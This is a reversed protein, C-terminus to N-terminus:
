KNNLMNNTIKYYYELSNLSKHGVHTMLIPLFANIDENNLIVKEISHTIFSFRLDHLRPYNEYRKINSKDLIKYFYKEVIIRSVKFFNNNINQNYHFKNHYTKIINNLSEPLVILREEDNKTDKLLFYGDELNYDKIKLNLVEGIRMGTQYLIKIIIPISTKIYYSTHYTFINNSNEIILKIEEKSFIYPVLNHKKQPYLKIPIQYCEINKQYKLYYCLERFTGMNRALCNSSLNLNIRAYREIVEKTIIEINNDILFNKIENLIIEDTRYKYGLFRKYQLFDNILTNYSYM